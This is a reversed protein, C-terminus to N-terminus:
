MGARVALFPAKQSTEIKPADLPVGAFAENLAVQLLTVTELTAWANNPYALVWHEGAPLQVANFLSGAHPLGFSVSGVSCPADIAPRRHGADTTASSPTM